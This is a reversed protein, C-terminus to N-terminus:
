RARVSAAVEACWTTLGSFKQPPVPAMNICTACQCIPFQVALGKKHSPVVPLSLSAHLTAWPCVLDISGLCHKVLCSVTCPARNVAAAIAKYIPLSRLLVMGSQNTFSTNTYMSELSGSQESGRLGPGRARPFHCGEALPRGVSATRREAALVIDYTTKKYRTQPALNKGGSYRCIRANRINLLLAVAKLPENSPSVAVTHSGVRRLVSLYTKMYTNIVHPL